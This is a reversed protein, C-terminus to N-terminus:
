PKVSRYYRRAGEHLLLPATYIATRLDVVQAAHVERGVEDRNDIVTRTVREVLAPDADARTVLLNAVAISSVARGPPRVGTYADAPMTASRYVAAVASPTGGMRLPEALEGLPVLRISARDALKQIAGTPLGGSWFFADIRGQELLSPSHDIGEPVATVDRDPDLGAARLLRRAVPNVGSGQQGIAVKRGRLQEPRQIRSDAPVVLQIYDDYLRAVARLGARQRDPLGAVADATAFTFTSRGSAVRGLNDVSGASNDMHIKVGPIARDLQPRLIRGYKEYVGTPVGTAFSVTGTPYEPGGSPALQWIAVACVAAL